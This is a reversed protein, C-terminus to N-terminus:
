ISIVNHHRSYALSFRGHLETDEVLMLQRPWPELAGLEPQELLREVLHLQGVPEADVVGPLDLVVEELLVRVGRRGSTNRAAQECRVLRMRRPWPMTSIGGAVVMRRPHRLADGREVEDRAAADLPARALARRGGLHVAEADIGSSRCAMHSSAVVSAALM